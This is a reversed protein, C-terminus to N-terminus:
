TNRTFWELLGDAEEVSGAYTSYITKDPKLFKHMYKVDEPSGWVSVAKGGKQVKAYLDLYDKHDGNGTGPVFELVYLGKSAILDDTHTLATVGDWHYLIRGNNCRAERELYPLAFRRFMPSSIMCSFDCQLHMGNIGPLNYRKLTKDYFYEFIDISQDLAKEIIEPRDLLDACLREGGRMALLLDLNSHLDIARFIMKGQMAAACKEIFAQMRRWLPNDEQVCLPLSAGWDEIFARSWNTSHDGNQFYLTEGGCFAAMEDCGFSLFAQPMSEGMYVTKHANSIIQATITDLDGFMRTYYNDTHYPADRYKPNPATVNVIPRDIMGGNWFAEYRKITERYNPKFELAEYDTLNYNM